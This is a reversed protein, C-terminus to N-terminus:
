PLDLQSHPVSIEQSTPAEAKKPKTIRPYEQNNWVGKPKLKIADLRHVHWLNSGNFCWVMAMAVQSGMPMALAASGVVGEM